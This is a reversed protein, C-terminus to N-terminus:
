YSGSRYNKVDPMVHVPASPATVLPSPALYKNTRVSM